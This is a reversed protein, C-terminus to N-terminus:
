FEPTPETTQSESPLGLSAQLEVVYFSPNYSSFTGTLRILKVTQPQFRITQWARCQESPGSRDAAMIWHEAEESACVELTYRQIRDDGDWLLFRVCDIEVPERLTILFPEPPNCNWCSYGFGSFWDYGTSIGDIMVVSNRGGTITAGHTYLAHNYGPPYTRKKPVPPIPEAQSVVPATVPPRGSLGLRWGVYFTTAALLLVALLLLAKAAPNVSQAQVSWTGEQM